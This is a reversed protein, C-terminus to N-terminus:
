VQWDWLGWKERQRWAQIDKALMTWDRASWKKVSIEQDRRDHKLEGEKGECVSDAVDTVWGFSYIENHIRKHTRGRNAQKNEETQPICCVAHSCYPELLTAKVLFMQEFAHM